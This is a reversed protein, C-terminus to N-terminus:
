KGLNQNLEKFSQSAEELVRLAMLARLPDSNANAITEFSTKFIIALKLEELHIKILNEPVRVAYLEEIVKGAAAGLGVFDELSSGTVAGEFEAYNDNLIKGLAAYYSNESVTDGAPAINFRQTDIEPQFQNYNFNALEETVAGEILADPSVVGISKEEGSLTPGQPNKGIISFAIKKAIIETFNIAPNTLSASNLATKLGELSETQNATPTLEYFSQDATAEYSLTKISPAKQSNWGIIFIGTLVSGLILVIPAFRKFLKM